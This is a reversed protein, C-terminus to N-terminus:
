CLHWTFYEEQRFSMHDKELYKLVELMLFVDVDMLFVEVDM